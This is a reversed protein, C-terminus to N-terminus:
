LGLLVMGRVWWSQLLVPEKARMGYEAPQLATEGVAQPSLVIVARGELEKEMPVAERTLWEASVEGPTLETVGGRAHRVLQAQEEMHAALCLLAVM